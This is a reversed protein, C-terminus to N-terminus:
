SAEEMKRSVRVRDADRAPQATHSVVGGTNERSVRVRDADRAPQATHSM